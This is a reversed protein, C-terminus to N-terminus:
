RRPMRPSSRSQRRSIARSAEDNSRRSPSSNVSPPKRAANNVLIDLRGFRSRAAGVFRSADVQRSVDDRVAVASGGRVRISRATELADDCRRHYGIVVSASDAALAQCIARGIGCSGGTVLAVKTTPIVARLRRRGTHIGVFTSPGCGKQQTACPRRRERGASPPSPTSADNMASPGPRCVHPPRLLRM